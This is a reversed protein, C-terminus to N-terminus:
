CFECEADQSLSTFLLKKSFYSKGAITRAEFDAFFKIAPKNQLLARSRATGCASCFLPLAKARATNERVVTFL